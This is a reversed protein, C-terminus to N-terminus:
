QEPDQANIFEQAMAHVGAAAGDLLEKSPSYAPRWLQWIWHRYPCHPTDHIPCTKVLADGSKREADRACEELNVPRHTCGDVGYLFGTYLATTLMNGPM